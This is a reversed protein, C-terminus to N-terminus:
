FEAATIPRIEEIRNILIERLNELKEIMEEKEKIKWGNCVKKYLRITEVHEQLTEVYSENMFLNVEAIFDEMMDKQRLQKVIFGNNFGKDNKYSM